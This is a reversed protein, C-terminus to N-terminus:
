RANGVPIERCILYEYFRFRGEICLHLETECKIIWDADIVRDLCSENAIAAFCDGCLPTDRKSCRDFPHVSMRGVYLDAM